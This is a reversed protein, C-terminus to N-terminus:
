IREMRKLTKIKRMDKDRASEWKRFVHKMGARILFLGPAFAARGLIFTMVKLPSCRGACHSSFM